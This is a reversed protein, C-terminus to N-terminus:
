NAEGDEEPEATKNKDISRKVQNVLEPIGMKGTMVNEALTGMNTQLAGDQFVANVVSMIQNMDPKDSGKVNVMQNQVRSVLNGIVNASEKDEEVEFQDCIEDLTKRDPSNEGLLNKFLIYLKAQMDDVKDADNKLLWIYAAGVPLIANKSNGTILKIPDSNTDGLFSLDEKLIDERFANYLKVWPKIQELMLQKRREKDKQKVVGMVLKRYLLAGTDDKWPPLSSIMIVLNKIQDFALAVNDKVNELQQGIPSLVAQKM